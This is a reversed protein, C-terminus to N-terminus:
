DNELLIKRIFIRENRYVQLLYVGEPLAGGALQRLSLPLPFADYLKDYRFVEEGQLTYLRVTINKQFWFRNKLYVEGSTPNPYLRLAAAEQEASLGTVQQVVLTREILNTCGSATQALLRIRYTGSKDFRQTVRAPRYTFRGEGLDWQWSVTENQAGKLLFAEFIAQENESLYLTDSTGNFDAFRNVQVQVAIPESEWWTDMRTVYVTRSTAAASLTFARGKHLLTDLSKDQYFYFQKGQAPRLTVPEGRCVRLSSFVPQKSVAPVITQSVSYSCSLGLTDLTYDLRVTFPQRAAHHRSFDYLFHPEESVKEGEVYWAIRTGASNGVAELRMGYRISVDATDLAYRITLPAQIVQVTVKQPVSPIAGATNVVYYDTSESLAPTTFQEGTYLLASLEVDEYVRIEDTNTATLVASSGPCIALSTLQPAPARRVVTLTRTATHKCGAASTASLTITYEGPQPFRAIPNSQTSHFGNGFDWQWAVAHESEDDFQVADNNSEDLFLTDNRFGYDSAQQMAFRAVPEQISIAIRYIASAYGDEVISAYIATDQVVSGVAYSAGEHLPQTGAPDRFFRLREQGPVEVTATEGSCVPVTLLTAPQQVYQQYYAQAEAAAQKLEALSNGVLLAFTLHEHSQAPLAAITGGVLYAVDEGNSVQGAQGQNPESLFNHKLADTFEGPIQDPRNIAYYIPEQDSLLAIGAYRSQNQDYVYGLQHVDDWDARNRDAQQLNWDAFFAAKVDTLESPGTNTVRYEGILFSAHQPNTLWTQEVTVNLPTAAQADSFTSRLQSGGVPSPYFKMAEQQAFDQSRMRNVYNQIANDSVQNAETALILGLQTAVEEEHYEVGGQLDINLPNYALDGNAGVTLRLTGNDLTVYDSSSVLHFYQYDQYSGDAFGLRFVLKEDTPLDEHLYIRFSDQVAELTNIQGITVEANLITVYESTTSLTVKAEDSTATLYNVFSMALTVTDGFFAYPGAHNQYTFTNMRVAPSQNSQLARAVNLRGKGLKEAYTQNSGVSYIDDASVRLTEMVQLANREPFQARVLTAAGAVLPASFSSGSAYGYRDGKRTTYNRNGPAMIDVFHNFTTQSVKHDNADSVAVSLVHEYSAPYFNEEKGSNGAAAIVVADKELVAYNIVDQGFQSYANAGGWSLNIVQCGQDAAYAIAEYGYAFRDDESRFIKIPMYSSRFGMGSIGVGNDTTASAVGAVLTGHDNADATPDNDQDAMDWGVYNDVYGDQDDDRGNIPDKRNVYLNDTLDQHGFEVGTDVIGIIMEESGQTIEWAEYARVTQLYDQNPAADPDNPTFALPRLLYYPEAYLVEELQLLQNITRVIDQDTRIKYIHQLSSPATRAQSSSKHHNTHIPNIQIAGAITQIKQLPNERTRANTSTPLKLKVVITGPQFDQATIGEPLRYTRDSQGWLLAPLLLLYGLLFLRDHM